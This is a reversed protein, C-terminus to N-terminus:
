YVPKTEWPALEGLFPTWLNYNGDSTKSGFCEVKILSGVPFDNEDPIRGFIRQASEETNKIIWVTDAFKVKVKEGIPIIGGECETGRIIGYFGDDEWEIIEVYYWFNENISIIGMCGTGYKNGGVQTGAWYEEGKFGLLDLDPNTQVAGFVAVLAICLCAAVSLCRLWIIKYDTRDKRSRLAETEEIIDDDIFSLAESLKEATM